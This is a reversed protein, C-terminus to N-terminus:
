LCPQEVEMCMGACVESPGGPTEPAITPSEATTHKAARKDRETRVASLMAADVTRVDGLDVKIRTARAAQHLRLTEPRAFRDTSHALEEHLAVKLLMQQMPSSNYAQSRQVKAGTSRSIYNYTVPTRALRRWNTVARGVRKLRAGRSEIAATAYRWTNGKEWLQIAAIFLLHGYWSMQNFNSVRNLAPLFKAAARLLRLARTARYPDSDSTWEDRWAAFVEGYAEWLILTDIVEGAKNGFRPASSPTSRSM